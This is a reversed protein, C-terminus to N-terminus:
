KPACEKHYSKKKLFGKKVEEGAPIEKGCKACTVTMIVEPTHTRDPQILDNQYDQRSLLQSGLYERKKYHCIEGLWRLSVDYQKM